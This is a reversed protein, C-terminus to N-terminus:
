PRRLFQPPIRPGQMARFRFDVHRCAPQVGWASFRPAWCSAADLWPVPHDHWDQRCPNRFTWRRRPCGCDDTAGKLLMQCRGRSISLFFPVVPFCSDCPGPLYGTYKRNPSQTSAILSISVPVDLKGRNRCRVKMLGAFRVVFPCPIPPFPSNSLVSLVTVNSSKNSAQKHCPNGVVRKM